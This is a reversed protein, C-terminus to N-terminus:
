SRWFNGFNSSADNDTVDEILDYIMGKIDLNVKQEYNEFTGDKEDFKAIVMISKEMMEDMNLDGSIYMDRFNRRLVGYAEELNAFVMLQKQFCDPYENKFGVVVM